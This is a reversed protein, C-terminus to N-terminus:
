SHERSNVREATPAGAGIWEGWSSWAAAKYLAEDHYFVPRYRAELPTLLLQGRLVLIDPQIFEKVHDPFIDVVHGGGLLHISFM